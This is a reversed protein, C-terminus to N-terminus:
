APSFLFNKCDATACSVWREVDANQVQSRTKDLKRCQYGRKWFMEFTEQFRANIGGPIVDDRLLIEVTWTPRPDLNLTETAGALVDLEFGEVDVKILLRNGQFRKAVLADLTTVPVLSYKSTEAQGWGVVFSSIGGFGYIRSLGSQKALGVPFVEVSSLKNEQLNRYLFNLNRLSPEFSVVHKGRSAALCSYFGINAGIDLVTDHSELLELFAQVEAPEFNSSAMSPDGALKFGYITQRSRQAVGVDRLRRYFHGVAPAFTDVPKRFASLFM